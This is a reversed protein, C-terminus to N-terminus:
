KENLKERARDISDLIIKNYPQVELCQEWLEIAEQYKGQRYYDRGRLYKVQVNSPMQQVTALSRAKAREFYKKAEADNPKTALAREFAEKAAPWEKNEYRRMGEEFNEDFTLQRQLNRIKDDIAKREADTLGTGRVKNLEDLAQVYQGRRALADARRITEQINGQLEEEATAIDSELKTRTEAVWDPLNDGEMRNIRELALQWESIAKDFAGSKFFEIGKERHELIFSQLEQELATQKAQSMMLRIEERRVSDSKADAVELRARAEQLSSHATEVRMNAEPDDLNEGRLRTAVEILSEAADLARSFDVYSGVYDGKRYKEQGEQMRNHFETENNFWLENQVQLQTERERRERAIRILETKGKGFEITISFRHSGSFAEGDFLKGFNYDIHYNGYSAGAGFAMQGDNFGVRVNAQDRFAFETGVHLSSPAHEAKNFDFVFTFSNNEEGFVFPKALGLKFNIPTSETTQFLKVKPSIINQVNAGLSLDRLFGNLDPRYIVGLDAGVGTDSINDLLSFNELKVTLGVGVKNFQKAYAFLFQNQSLDGTTGQVANEDSRTIDDTALRTWGFGFSGISTTPYSLGVFSYSTGFNFSSYFFSAGKKEIFDLGAPNWFVASPDESLAVYANGLALARAGVGATTFNNKTGGEGQGFAPLAACILYLIWSTLIYTKFQKNLM